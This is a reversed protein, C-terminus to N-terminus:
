ISEMSVTPILINTTSVIPTVSENFTPIPRSLLKSYTDVKDINVTLLSKGIAEISQWSRDIENWKSNMFLTDLKAKNKLAIAGMNRAM